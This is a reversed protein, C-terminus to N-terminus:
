GFHSCRRSHYRNARSIHLQSSQSDPPGGPNYTQFASEFEKNFERNSVINKAHGIVRNGKSFRPVSSSVKTVEGVLAIGLISPYEMPFIAEEQQKWEVPNIAVAYIKVVIEGELLSAYPTDKM